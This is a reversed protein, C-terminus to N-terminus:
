RVKQAESPMDDSSSSLDKMSELTAAARGGGISKGGLSAKKDAEDDSSMRKNGLNGALESLKKMLKEEENQGSSGSAQWVGEIFIVGVNLHFYCLFIFFRISFYLSHCLYVRSMILATELYYLHM